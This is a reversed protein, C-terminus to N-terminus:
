LMWSLGHCMLHVKLLAPSITINDCGALQVLGVGHCMMALADHCVADHCVMVFSRVKLLAPSITINDCGALERIEGASRFSAAMVITKYGYQKYYQYIRRVSLVGPDQPRVPLM